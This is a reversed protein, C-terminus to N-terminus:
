VTVRTITIRQGSFAANGTLPDVALEDTLDNISAGANSEAIPIETQERDHGYGHPISVVGPMMSDTIEVPLRIEGVRSNAVVEDNDNLEMREADLPNMMLTCRNKGKTLRHSNHLWSNNSRLSRRGILAFTQMSERVADPPPGQRQQDSIKKLGAIFPVPAADVKGDVTRLARPLQPQLEGLDIGHTAAKLRKLNLGGQLPRRWAGYPGVSLGLNM